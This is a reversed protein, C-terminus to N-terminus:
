GFMWSTPNAIPRNENLALVGKINRVISWVLWWLLVFAGVVVFFLVAGVILYLLGIWFTRIQFQFHSRAVPDASGSQIHAIIVGIIKTIGTLYGAFYLLYVIFALGTDSVAPQSSTKPEPEPM